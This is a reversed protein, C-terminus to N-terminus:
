HGVMLQKLRREKSADNYEHAFYVEYISEAFTIALTVFMLFCQYIRCGELLTAEYRTSTATSREQRQPDIGAPTYSGSSWVVFEIEM